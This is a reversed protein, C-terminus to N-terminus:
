ESIKVDDGPDKGFHSKYLKRYKDVLNNPINKGNVIIRDPKMEISIEDDSNKIVGDNVLEKKVDKIFSDLKDLNGDVGSLDVRLNKLEEKLSKMREKLDDMNINIDFKKNKMEKRLAEMDHNFSDWNFHINLDMNKLNSELEKMNNNFISTDIHVSIKMNKLSDLEKDLDIMNDKKFFEANFKKAWPKIHFYFSNGGLDNLSSFVKDSYEDFQDVPIKKGNKYIESLSDARFVATYSDNTGNSTDVFTFTKDGSKIEPQETKNDTLSNEKASSCAAFNLSSVILLMVFFLGTQQKSFRLFTNM